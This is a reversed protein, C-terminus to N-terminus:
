WREITITGEKGLKTRWLEALTQSMKWEHPAHVSLMPCSSTAM